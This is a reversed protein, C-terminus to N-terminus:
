LRRDGFNGSPRSGKASENEDAVKDSEAEIKALEDQINHEVQAQKKRQELEYEASEKEAKTFANDGRLKFVYALLALIIALIFGGGGIDMM